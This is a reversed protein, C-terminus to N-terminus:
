EHEINRRIPSELLFEGRAIGHSLSEERAIGIYREALYREKGARALGDIHRHLLVRASLILALVVVPTAFIRFSPEFRFEREISDHIGQAIEIPRKVM